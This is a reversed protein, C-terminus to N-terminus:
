LRNGRRVAEASGLKVIAQDKVSLDIGVVDTVGRSPLAEIAKELHLLQQEFDEPAFTIRGYQTSTVVIVAGPANTRGDFREFSIQRWQAYHQPMRQRAEELLRAAVEVGVLPQYGQDTSRLQVGALFPMNELMLDNYNEGSYVIGDSSVLLRLLEGDRTRGLLRLVPRHEEVTIRLTHPYRREVQASRIQGHALLGDRVEFIDVEVLPVSKLPHLKRNAWDQSLVGDSVFEINEVLNPSVTLSFSRAPGSFLWYIGMATACLAIVALTAAGARLVARWQRRKAAPTSPRARSQQIRRWSQSQESPKSKRSKKKSM